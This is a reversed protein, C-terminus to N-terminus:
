RRGGREERDMQQWWGGSGYRYANADYPRYRRSTYGYYRSSKKKKYAVPYSNGAAPYAGPDSYASAPASTGVALTGTLLAALLLKTTM